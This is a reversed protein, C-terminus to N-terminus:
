KSITIYSGSGEDTWGLDEDIELGNKTGFIYDGCVILDESIETVVLDMAPVSGGFWRYVKDGIKLSKLNSM